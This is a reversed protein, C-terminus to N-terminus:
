ANWTLWLKEPGRLTINPFYTFKQDAVLDLSPAERTLTQLAINTELIALRSGLCFHIGRGFSIHNSANEREIDFARPDGFAAEDHNASALSLFIHTGAPIKIGAIETDANAVRRWGTQPSSHRLVEQAANEIRAPDACIKEWQPRDSLLLILSNSLFNTVIEHGAFSLGYVASGIEQLSLDDPDADHAALLESTFDDAPDDKRMQVFEACYRWYALLNEAIAVQEDEDAKGWMFALRNGTWEKLMRDDSEPFGILRFITDGPLPYGVHSVFEAPADGELMASVLTECRQRIYPELVRMRRGSFGAQTHKRIRTHDPRQCNSMVPIPNFDEAELVKFAADCIQIVPDQVNESSFITPDKFVEEVDEMRTLVLCGLDEAYFIPSNNRRKELEAYPDAQYDDSFPSFAHDVPCGSPAPLTDPRNKHYAADGMKLCRM